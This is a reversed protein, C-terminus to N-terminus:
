WAAYPHQVLRANLYRPDHSVEEGLWPPREFPQDEHTLEVEAVVLGQNAGHFEDIEWTLAGLVVPYRTKDIIDGLCMGALIQEADELDIAYEFEDRTLGRRAGKISLMAAGSMVRVRVTARKGLALYGQRCRVGRAGIRWSEDKVLFKREIEKAM